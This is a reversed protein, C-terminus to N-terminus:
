KSYYKKRQCNNKTCKIKNKVLYPMGCVMDYRNLEIVKFQTPFKVGAITGTVETFKECRQKVGNAMLLYM